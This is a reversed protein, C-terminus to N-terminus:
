SPSIVPLGEAEAAALLRRDYGIFATLDERLVLASALHIADLARLAPPHLTAARELLTPTMPIMELQALISRAIAVAESDRRNSARLVEVHSLQSSARVEDHSELWLSLAEREEEETVLKVIASSDLYIV